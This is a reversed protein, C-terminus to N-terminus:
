ILQGVVALLDSQDFSGKIVYGNAGAEMGRERDEQSDLTTVLVIPLEKLTEDARVRCTLEFGNLGPMEVDSVLLDVKYRRLVALADAGDVATRVRYGAAELITKLLLRSTISDEAVLVHGKHAPQQPEIVWQRPAGARRASRLLDSPELVPAVQGSALVTAGSVNRVRALPRRLPKVLVEQEDLVDDVVFGVRQDGNGLVLVQIDPLASPAPPLELVDAMRVLPVTRGELLFTDRREVSRIDQPDLRLVREVQLTPLVMLQGAAKFLIGRFTAQTSPVTITFASGRGPESTVKVHGGLKEAKERVIALGLGRGSIDTVADRTSLESAFVLPYVGEDDLAAADAENLLGREVAARAVRRADIGAGDDVVLIRVQGPGAHDVVIRVVGQEPKGAARRAAPTEVGHDVCNRLLHILPDKIEQLIRKDLEVSEGEIRFDVQKGQERCVDRVLRPFAGAISAFPLLLLLKSEGLLEDVMRAVRHQDARTEQDLLDARRTAQRVVAANWELFDLVKRLAAAADGQGARVSQVHPQLANWAGEWQALDSGLERVQAARRSAMLKAGVLEEAQALCSELKVVPVRVTTDATEAPASEAIAASLPSQASFMPAAAAAPALASGIADLARHVDDLAEPGPESHGRRWDAFVDEITQCLREIDRFEVARAAGKLSHADRFVKEVIDRLLGPPAKELALLGSAISQVHEAAEVRFTDRLQRLFPTELAEM